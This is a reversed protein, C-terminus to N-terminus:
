AAGGCPPSSRRSGSTGSGAAAPRRRGAAPPSTASSIRGFHPSAPIRTSIIGRSVFACPVIKPPTIRDYMSWAPAISARRWPRCNMTVTDISRTTKWSGTNTPSRTLKQVSVSRMPVVDIVVFTVTSAMRGGLRRTVTVSACTTYTFRPSSRFGFGIPHFLDDDDRPRVASSLRREGSLKQRALRPQRHKEIGVLDRDAKQRGIRFSGRNTGAPKQQVLDITVDSSSPAKGELRRQGTVRVQPPDVLPAFAAVDDLQDEERELCRLFCDRADRPPNFLTPVGNRRIDHAPSEDSPQSIKQFEIPMSNIM